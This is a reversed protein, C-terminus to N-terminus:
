VEQQFTDQEPFLFHKHAKDRSYTFYHMLASACLMGESNHLFAEIVAFHRKMEVIRAKVSVLGDSVYVPKHFKIDLKSTVGATALKVFVVWSGIEDLLTAQVGGHVVNIWGEYNKEPKWDAIVWEGEERFKLKM